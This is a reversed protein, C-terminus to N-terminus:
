KTVLITGVDTASYKLRATTTVTDMAYRLSTNILFAKVKYAPVDAAVEIKVGTQRSLDAFLQRIDVLNYRTTVRRKMDSETVKAAPAQFSVPTKEVPPNTLPPTKEVPPLDLPALSPTSGTSGMPVPAVTKGGKKGIYYIDNQLDYKLNAQKLVIELAEDFGVENLILFLETKEVGEIVFNRRKQLFLDYLVERVDKGRSTLSVKGAADTKLTGNPTAQALSMSAFALLTALTITRNVRGAEQLGAIKGPKPPCIHIVKM